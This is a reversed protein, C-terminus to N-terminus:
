KRRSRNAKIRNFEKKAELRNRFSTMTIKGDAEKIIEWEYAHTGMLTIVNGLDDTIIARVKSSCNQKNFVHKKKLM